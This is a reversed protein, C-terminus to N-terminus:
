QAPAPAQAPAAPAPNPASASCSEAAAALFSAIAQQDPQSKAMPNREAAVPDVVSLVLYSRRAEDLERMAREALCQCAPVGLNPMQTTCISGILAQVEEPKGFRMEQGLAAGPLLMAVLVPVARRTLNALNSM